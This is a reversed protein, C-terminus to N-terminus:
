NVSKIVAERSSVSEGIWRFNYFLLLIFKNKEGIVNNILLVSVDAKYKYKVDLHPNWVLEYKHMTNIGIM